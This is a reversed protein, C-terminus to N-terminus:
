DEQAFNLVFAALGLFCLSILPLAIVTGLVQSLEWSSNWLEKLAEYTWSVPMIIEFEEPRNDGLVAESFVVQPILILPILGVATNQSKVCASVLLGLSTGALAGGYLYFMLAVRSLKYGTVNTYVILTLILCQIFAVLALVLFKSLLYATVPVGLRKERLFIAREKVIERCANVCGFWVAVLALIFNLIEQNQVGDQWAVAIVAGIIPAQLLLILTAGTDSLTLTLYRDALISTFHGTSGITQSNNAKSEVQSM